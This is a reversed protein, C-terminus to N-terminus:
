RLTCVESHLGLFAFDLNPMGSLGHNTSCILTSSIATNAFRRNKLQQYGALGWILELSRFSLYYHSFLSKMSSFLSGDKQTCASKPDRLVLLLSGPRSTRDELCHATDSYM